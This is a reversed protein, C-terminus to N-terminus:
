KGRREYSRFIDEAIRRGTQNHGAFLLCYLPGNKSNTMVIPFSCQAFIEKLRKQFIAGVERGSYAVKTKQPGFLTDEEKYLDIMWDSTGWFRNLRDRSAQSIMEPHQRLVGRNIAMIPFNLIIEITQTEAIQQITDWEFQMGFPDVFAIARKKSAFSLQPLIQERLITNCDGHYLTISRDAFEVRLKELKAIRWSEQEVFHYQSFPPNLGLAIRPSGDVYRQEDRSKPRGTGAFADIFECGRCWKQSRLIKLYAALYKRLVELKELSWQGIVDEREPATM